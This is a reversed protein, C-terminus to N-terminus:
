SLAALREHMIRIGLRELDDRQGRHGVPILDYIAGLSAFVQSVDLECPHSAEWSEFAKMAARKKEILDQLSTRGTSAGSM